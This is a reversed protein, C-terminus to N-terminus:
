RICGVGCCGSSHGAMSIVGSVSSCALIIVAHSRYMRLFGSSGPLGFYLTYHPIHFTYNFICFVVRCLMKNWFRENLIAVSTNQTTKANKKASKKIPSGRTGSRATPEIGKSWANCPSEIPKSQAAQWVPERAEAFAKIGEFASQM